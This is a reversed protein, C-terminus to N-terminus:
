PLRYTLCLGYAIGKTTYSGWSLETGKYFFVYGITNVYASVSDLTVPASGDILFTPTAPCPVMLSSSPRIAAPIGTVFFTSNNSTGEILAPIYLSVLNGIKLYKGTGTISEDVAGLTVTFDVEDYTYGAFIDKVQVKCNVGSQVIEAYEEGDTPDATPLETVKVGAM